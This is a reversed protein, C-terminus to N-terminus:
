QVTYIVSGSGSDFDAGPNFFGSGYISWFFCSTLVDWVHLVTQVTLHHGRSIKCKFNQLVFTIQFKLLNLINLCILYKILSKCTKDNCKYTYYYLIIISKFLIITTNITVGFRRSHPCSTARYWRFGRTGAGRFCLDTTLLLIATKHDAFQGPNSDWGPPGGWQATLNASSLYISTCFNDTVHTNFSLTPHYFRPCISCLFFLLFFLSICYLLFPRLLSLILM